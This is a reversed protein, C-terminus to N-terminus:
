ECAPAPVSFGSYYHFISGPINNAPQHYTCQNFPEFINSYSFCTWQGFLEMSLNDMNVCECRQAGGCSRSFVNLLLATHFERKEVSDNMSFAMLNWLPVVVAGLQKSSINTNRDKTSLAFLFHRSFAWTFRLWPPPPPPSLFVSPCISPVFPLTHCFAIQCYSCPSISLSLPLPLLFLFSLLLFSLASLSNFSFPSCAPLLRLPQSHNVTAGCLCGCLPRALLHQAGCRLSWLSCCTCGRTGEAKPHSALM